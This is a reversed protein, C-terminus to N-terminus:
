KGFRQTHLVCNMFVTAPGESDSSFILLQWLFYMNIYNSCYNGLQLFFGM